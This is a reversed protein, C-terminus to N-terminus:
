ELDLYFIILLSAAKNKESLWNVVYSVGYIVAPFLILYYYNTVQGRFMSFGLLVVGFLIANIYFLSKHIKFHVIFIVALLLINLYLPLHLFSTTVSIENQLIQPIKNIFEFKNGGEGSLFAALNSSNIFGHRLDFIILPLFTTFLLILGIFIFKIDDKKIKKNILLYGIFLITVPIYFIGTFHFHLFIGIAFFLLPWYKRNQNIKYYLYYIIVSLLLIGSVNWVPREWGIFVMSIAHFFGAFLGVRKNYISKGVLYIILTTLVGILSSLFFQGIPNMRTIVMPLSYLYFYLPGIFINGVSTKMGLLVPKHDVLLQKAAWATAEQDYEFGVKQTLNYFRFFSSILLILILKM